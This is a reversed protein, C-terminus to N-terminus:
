FEIRNQVAIMCEQLNPFLTTLDRDTIRIRRITGGCYHHLLQLIDAVGQDQPHFFEGHVQVPSLVIEELGKNVPLIYDELLHQLVHLNPHASGTLDLVRLNHCTQSMWQYLPAGLTTRHNLIRLERLSAPIFKFICNVLPPMDISLVPDFLLEESSCDHLELTKLRKSWQIFLPFLKVIRFLRLTTLRPFLMGAVELSVSDDTLVLHEIIDAYKQATHLNARTIQAHNRYLYHLAYPNLKKVCASKILSNRDDQLYSLIKFSLETPLKKLPFM